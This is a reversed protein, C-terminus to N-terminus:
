TEAKKIRSLTKSLTFSSYKFRREEIQFLVQGKISSVVQYLIMIKKLINNCTGMFDKANFYTM